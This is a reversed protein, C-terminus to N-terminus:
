YRNRAVSKVNKNHKSILKKDKVRYSEIIDYIKNIDLGKDEQYKSKNLIKIFKKLKYVPLNKKVNLGVKNDVFVVFSEIDVKYIKEKNFIHRIIDIHGQNQKLPNYFKHKKDGIYQIWKDDFMSGYIEGHLNKTEIVIIGFRGIIIHDIQSTKDYLPLYINNIIKYGRTFSYRKLKRSVKKEGNKGIKNNIKNIRNKKLFIIFFILTAFILIIGLIWLSM